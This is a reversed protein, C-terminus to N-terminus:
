PDREKVSPMADLQDLLRRLKEPTCDNIQCGIFIDARARIRQAETLPPTTKCRRAGIVGFFVVASVFLIACRRRLGRREPPRPKPRGHGNDAPQLREGYHERM